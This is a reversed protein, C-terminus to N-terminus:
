VYSYLGYMARVNSFVVLSYKDWTHILRNKGECEFRELTLLQLYLSKSPLIPLKGWLSDLNKIVIYNRHMNSTLNYVMINLLVGCPYPGMYESDYDFQCHDSILKLCQLNRIIIIRLSWSEGVFTWRDTRRLNNSNLHFHLKCTFIERAM